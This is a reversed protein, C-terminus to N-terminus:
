AILAENLEIILEKPDQGFAKRAVALPVGEDSDVSGRLKTATDWLSEEFSKTPKTAAKRATKKKAPM